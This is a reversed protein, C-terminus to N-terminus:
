CNLPIQYRWNIRPSCNVTPKPQPLRRILAQYTVGRYLLTVARSAIASVTSRNVKRAADPYNDSMRDSITPMSVPSFEYQAGRYILQM